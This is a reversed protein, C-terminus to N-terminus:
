IKVAPASVSANVVWNAQAPDDDLPVEREDVGENEEEDTGRSM